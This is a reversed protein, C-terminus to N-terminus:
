GGMLWMYRDSGVTQTEEKKLGKRKRHLQHAFLSFNKRYESGQSWYLGLGLEDISKM